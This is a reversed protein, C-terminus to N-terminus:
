FTIEYTYFFVFLIESNGLLPNFISLVSLIPKKLISSFADFGKFVDCRKGGIYTEDAEIEGDLPNENNSM